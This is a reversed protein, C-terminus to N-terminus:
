FKKEKTISRERVELLGTNPIAPALCSGKQLQVKTNDHRLWETTPCSQGIFRKAATTLLHPQFLIKSAKGSEQLLSFLNFQCQSGSMHISANRNQLSLYRGGFWFMMTDHHSSSPVGRKVSVLSQSRWDGPNTDRDWCPNPNLNRASVIVLAPIEDPQLSSFAQWGNENSETTHEKEKSYEFASRQSNNM